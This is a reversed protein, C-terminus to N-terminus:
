KRNKRLDYYSRDKDFKEPHEEMYRDLNRYHTRLSFKGVSMIEKPRTIGSEYIKVWDEYSTNSKGYKKAKKATSVAKRKTKKTGSSSSEKMQRSKKPMKGTKNAASGQGAYIDESNGLPMLADAESMKSRLRNLLLDIEDKYSEVTSELSIIKASSIDNQLRLRSCEEAMNNYMSEYTKANNLAATLSANKHSAAKEYIILDENKANLLNKYADIDKSMQYILLKYSSSDASEPTNVAEETEAVTRLDEITANLEEIDKEKSLVTDSLSSNTKKLSVIEKTLSANEKTLKENEKQLQESKTALKEMEELMEEFSLTNKELSKKAM